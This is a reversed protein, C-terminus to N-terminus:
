FVVTKNSKDKFSGRKNEIDRDKNKLIKEKKIEISRNFYSQIIWNM